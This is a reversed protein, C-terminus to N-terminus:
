SCLGAFVVEEASIDTRSYAVMLYKKISESVEANPFDLRYEATIPFYNEITLYGTQFLIPIVPIHGIDFTGLSKESFKVADLDEFIFSDKKLLEILFGPTGSELWYNARREKELYYLVSFPNFVKTPNDSFRYGNYWSEMEDKIEQPERSTNKAFASIYPSFYSEIEEHTYGLLKSARPDMTIDNLNNLGSFLSTKSFKTVGTIFIAKLSSDLSKLVSFFNKLVKRNAECVKENDLNNILPFDYEDILMVVSQEKALTRILRKLKSGPTPYKEVNVGLEEALEDLEISLSAKLEAGSDIDLNSFDFYIVPYSEWNYDSKGIWLDKFLEKNGSYVEKLTSIFLSKGFRRPRSLFYYRGNMVFDYIIETKDVYLYNESLLKELTSIDIPLRKITGQISNKAVLLM